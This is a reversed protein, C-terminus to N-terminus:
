FERQHNAKKWKRIKSRFSKFPAITNIHVWKWIPWKSPTSSAWKRMDQKFLEDASFSNVWNTFEVSNKM